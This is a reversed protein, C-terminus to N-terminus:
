RAWPFEAREWYDNIVALVDIDVFKRTKVLYSEQEPTFPEGLGFYDTGLAEGISFQLDMFEAEQRNGLVLHETAEFLLPRPARFVSNDVELRDRRM